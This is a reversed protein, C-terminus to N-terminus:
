QVPRVSALVRFIEYDETLWDKLKGPWFSGTQGQAYGLKNNKM